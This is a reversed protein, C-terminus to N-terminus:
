AMGNSQVQWSERVIEVHVLKHLLGQIHYGIYLRKLRMSIWRVVRNKILTSGPPLFAM